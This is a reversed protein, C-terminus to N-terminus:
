RRTASPLTAAPGDGPTSMEDAASDLPLCNWAEYIVVNRNSIGPQFCVRENAISSLPQWAVNDRARHTVYDSLPSNERPRFRVVIRWATPLANDLRVAVGVSDEGRVLSGRPRPLDALQSAFEIEWDKTRQAYDDLVLSLDFGSLQFAAQWLAFGELDRPFDPRGLTALLTKPAGPGYRRLLADVLAAGLPYVLNRDVNRELTDMETLQRPSIMHRQSVIAAQMRDFESVGAKEFLTQEVWHALGENFTEMKRLERENEGGALRNAFVHTTEHALVSLAMEGNAYMRIRDFYATGETNNISGSLDVDISAGGDIGLQTAVNGFVEDAHLLLPQVSDSQQAPYSFTYHRTEAHGPATPTFQVTNPKGESVTRAHGGSASRGYMVIAGFVAAITAVAVLASVFPRSLRLELQRRRGAGAANFALFSALGFLLMISLQVAASEFPLRLHPGVPQITFAEVPNLASFRPWSNSLIKIGIALLALSLWCLSRLFGLLLGCALGSATLMFILTFKTALLQLHVDHDLSGRAILHEALLLGLYGVPYILLVMMAILLKAFFSQARTLPLGDLFALTGDDIERVLLGSGVAFSILFQFILFPDLGNFTRSFPQLDWQEFLLELLEIALLAIGLFLFPRQGRYEKRILGGIV